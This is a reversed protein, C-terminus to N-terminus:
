NTPRSKQFLPRRGGSRVYTLGDLGRENYNLVWDRCTMYRLGHRNCYDFVSLGSQLLKVLFLIRERTRPHPAAAAHFFLADVGHKWKHLNITLM